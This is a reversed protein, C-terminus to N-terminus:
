AKGRRLQKAPRWTWPKYWKLQARKIRRAEAIMAETFQLTTFPRDGFVRGILALADAGDLAVGEITTNYSRLRAITEDM